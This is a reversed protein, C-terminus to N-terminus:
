IWQDGTGKWTRVHRATRWPAARCPAAGRGGLGGQCPAGTQIRCLASAQTTTVGSPYAAISKRTFADAASELCSRPSKAESSLDPSPPSPPPPPPAVPMLPFFWFGFVPDKPGDRGSPPPPPGDPRQPLRPSSKLRAPIHQHTPPQLLPARASGPLFRIFPHLLVTHPHCSSARLSLDQLIRKVSMNQYGCVPWSQGCLGLSLHQYALWGTPFSDTSIVM